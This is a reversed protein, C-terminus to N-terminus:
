SSMLAAPVFISEFKQEKGSVASDWEEKNSSIATLRRKAISGADGAEEEGIAGAVLHGIIVGDTHVVGGFLEGMEEPKMTPRRWYAVTHRLPEFVQVADDRETQVQEVETYHEEIDVNSTNLEAVTRSGLANKAKLLEALHEIQVRLVGTTSM